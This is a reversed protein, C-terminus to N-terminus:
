ALLSGLDRMARGTEDPAFIYYELHIHHVAEQIALSMALFVSEADHYITVENGRTVVSEGIRTALRLLSRQAADLELSRLADHGEALIHARHALSDAIARRRRTRKRVKREVPLSGVLLYLVLGVGPLFLLALIWAMMGRPERRTRLMHEIAALAGITSLLSLISWLTAPTMPTHAVRM